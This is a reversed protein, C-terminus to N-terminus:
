TLRQYEADSIVITGAARDGLRQRNGRAIQLGMWFAFLTPGVIPIALYWNRLVSDIMGAARGRERSFAVLGTVLKGISKGEIADKLLLYLSPLSVLLAPRLLALLPLRRFGLVGFVLLGAVALDVLGAVFRRLRPADESLVEGM